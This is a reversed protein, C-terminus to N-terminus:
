AALALPQPFHAVSAPVGTSPASVLSKLGLKEILYGFSRMGLEFNKTDVYVNEVWEGKVKLKLDVDVEWVKLGGKSVGDIIEKRIEMLIEGLVNEGCYGGGVVKKVGFYGDTNDVIVIEKKGTKLLLEGFKLFNSFLKGKVCWKMVSKECGKLDKRLKGEYKKVVKKISNLNGKDNLESFVDGGGGLMVCFYLVGVNEFENVGNKIKFGCSKNLLGGFPHNISDVIINDETQKFLKLM